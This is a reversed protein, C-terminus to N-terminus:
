IGDNPRGGLGMRIERAGHLAGGWRSWVRSEALTSAALLEAFNFNIGSEPTDCM